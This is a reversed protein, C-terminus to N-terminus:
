AKADGKVKGNEGGAKDKDESSSKALDMKADKLDDKDQLYSSLGNSGTSDPPSPGGGNTVADAGSQFM